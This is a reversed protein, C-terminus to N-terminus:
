DEKRSERTPRVFFLEEFAGFLILLYAALELTEEVMCRVGNPDIPYVSTSFHSWLWRVGLAQAWFAALGLGFILLVFAPRQLFAGVERVMGRRFAFAAVAALVLFAAILLHHVNEFALCELFLDMERACATLAFCALVLALGRRGRDRIATACFLVAALACVAVSAWEVVANELLIRQFGYRLVLGVEIKLVLGIFVLYLVIRLPFWRREPSAMDHERSDAGM